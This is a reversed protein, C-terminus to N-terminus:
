RQAKAGQRSFIGFELTESYPSKMATPCAILMTSECTRTLPLM